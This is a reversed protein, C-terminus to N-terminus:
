GAVSTKAALAVAETGAVIAIDGYQREYGVQREYPAFCLAGSRAMKIVESKTIFHGQPNTVVFSDARLTELAPADDTLSATM